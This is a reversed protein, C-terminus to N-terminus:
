DAVVRTRLEEGQREIAISDGDRFIWGVQRWPALEPLARVGDDVTTAAPSKGTATDTAGEGMTCAHAATTEHETVDPQLGPAPPWSPQWRM